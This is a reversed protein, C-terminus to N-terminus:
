NEELIPQGQEDLIFTSNPLSYDTVVRLLIRVARVDGSQSRMFGWEADAAEVFLVDVNDLDLSDDVAGIIQDVVENCVGEAYELKKQSEDKPMNQATPMAVIVNFGYIRRNESTTAFTGEMDAQTIFVAPWRSPHAEEYKYVEGVSSLGDIVDYIANRVRSAIATM